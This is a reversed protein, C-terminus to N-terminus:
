VPRNGPISDIHQELAELFADISEIHSAHDGELELVSADPLRDGLVDVIRKLLPTTANGNVLLVPCTIRALDGLSRPPRDLRESRWSLAMRHAVWRDWAPDSRVAEPSKALGALVLFEALDQESVERGTLAYMFADEARIEDLHEGLQELVWSTGPEVLTLSRVHSPYETAYELAAGGGGSWGALHVSDLALAELTLRLSERETDSDYSPDGPVGASGLENHIPQVRIARYGGALREQHPIWSLWGTLGGPLLVVPEGDGKADHILVRPIM